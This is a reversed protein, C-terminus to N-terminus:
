RVRPAENLSKREIKSLEELNRLAERWRSVEELRKILETVQPFRSEKYDHASWVTRPCIDVRLPHEHPNVFAWRAPKNAELVYEIFYAKVTKKCQDCWLWEEKFTPESKGM